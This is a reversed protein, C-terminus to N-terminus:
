RDVNSKKSINLTNEPLQSLEKGSLLVEVREEPPNTNVFYVATVIRRLKLEYLIHYVAEQVSCERNSLYAKDITKHHLSSAHQEWLSGPSSTAFGTFM